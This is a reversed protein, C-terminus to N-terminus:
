RFGIELSTFNSVFPRWLWKELIGSGEQVNDIKETFHISYNLWLPLIDSSQLILICCLKWESFLSLRFRFCLFCCSAQFALAYPYVNMLLDSEVSEPPTLVRKYSAQEFTNWFLSLSLPVYLVIRSMVMMALICPLDIVNCQIYACIEMWSSGVKKLEIMKGAISRVCM